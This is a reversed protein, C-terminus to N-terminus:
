GVVPTKGHRSEREGWLKSAFTIGDDTIPYSLFEGKKVPQDILKKQILRIYPLRGSFDDARVIGGGEYSSLLAEACSDIIKKNNTGLIKGLEESM